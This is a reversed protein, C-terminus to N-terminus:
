FVWYKHLLFLTAAVTVIALAQVSQHPLHFNDVAIWLLMFNLMYGFVCVAVYRLFVAHFIGHHKFTWFRNVIFTLLVGFVYLLTM